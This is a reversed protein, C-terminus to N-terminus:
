PRAPECEGVDRVAGVGVIGEVRRDVATRVGCRRVDYDDDARGAAAGRISQVVCKSAGSCVTDDVSEGAAGATGGGDRLQGIM